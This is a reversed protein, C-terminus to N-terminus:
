SIPENSQFLQEQPFCTCLQDTEAAGQNFSKKTAALNKLGQFSVRGNCFSCIKVSYLKDVCGECMLSGRRTDRKLLLNKCLTCEHIVSTPSGHLDISLTQKFKMHNDFSEANQTEHWSRFNLIFPHKSNSFVIKHCIQLGKQRMPKQMQRQISCFGLTGIRATM